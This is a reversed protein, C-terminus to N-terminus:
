QRFDHAAQQGAIWGTSFAAQLNYGGTDGHIDLLEGTVFLNEVLKSRCCTPDIETLQVGGSTVIAKEIDEYGSIDFPINKLWHIIAKRQKASINQAQMTSDLQLEQICYMALTRPLLKTLLAEVTLIKPTDLERLIRNTLQEESLAPKCDILLRVNKSAHLSQVVLDSITLIIPGSLTTRDFQIDGFYPKKRKNNIFLRVQCNKLLLGDLDKPLPQAVKLPILSPLIDTVTHGCQTLWAYGDGTSGTRPYSAGGTALIVSHCPYLKTDTQIHSVKGNKIIFDKVTSSTLLSVGNKKVWRELTKVVEVGKNCAPFVRGGRETILELGQTNFLTILEDRFFQSFAQHLFKGNKGFHGIFDQVPATNTLNCRGKGSIGIKRGPLKMKELLLVKCGLEAARGAALLGSAGAGIVIVPSKTM